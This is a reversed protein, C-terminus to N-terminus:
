NRPQAGFDSCFINDGCHLKLIILFMIEILAYAATNVKNRETLHMRRAEVPDVSILTIFTYLGGNTHFQTQAYGM